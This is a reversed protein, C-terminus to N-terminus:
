RSILKNDKKNLRKNKVQEPKGIFFISIETLLRMSYNM